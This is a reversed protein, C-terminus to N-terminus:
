EEDGRIVEGSWQWLSRDPAYRDMVETMRHIYPLVSYHLMGTPWSVVGHLTRWGRGDWGKVTITGYNDNLLM